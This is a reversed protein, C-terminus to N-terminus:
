AVNGGLSESDGQTITPIAAFRAKRQRYNRSKEAESMRVKPADRGKDLKYVPCTRYGRADPAWDIVRLRRHNRDDECRLERLAKIYRYVTSEHFGTHEAIEDTTGGTTLLIEIFKAYHRAGRMEVLTGKAPKNQM